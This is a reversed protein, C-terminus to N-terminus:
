KAIANLLGIKELSGSYAAKDTVSKPIRYSIELLEKHEKMRDPNPANTEDSDGNVQHHKLM